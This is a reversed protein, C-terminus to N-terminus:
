IRSCIEVLRKLGLIWNTGQSSHQTLLNQQISIADNWKKAQILQTFQLLLSCAPESVQQNNLRDFLLNFRREVDALMKKQAPPVLPKCTNLTRLLVEHIPKHQHPIHSRDGPPHLQSKAAQQQQQQQPQPSPLQQQQQQPQSSTPMSGGTPLSSSLQQQATNAPPPQYQGAPASPMSPSPIASQQQPPPALPAAKHKPKTSKFIDAPPDNFGGAPKQMSPPVTPQISSPPQQQQPNSTLYAGPGTSYSASPPMMMMGAANGGSNNNPGASMPSNAIIPAPPQPVFSRTPQLPPQQQQQQHQYTAASAPAPVASTPPASPTQQNSTSTPPAMPQQQQQTTTAANTNNNNNNNYFNSSGYYGSNGSGGYYGGGGGYGYTFQQQQQQQNNNNNNAGFGHQQRYHHNNNNNNQSIPPPQQQQQHLLNQTKSVMPFSGNGTATANRSSSKAVISSSQPQHLPEFPNGLGTSQSGSAAAVEVRFALVWLRYDGGVMTLRASKADSSVAAPAASSSSSSTLLVFRDLFQKALNLLGHSVLFQCYDRSLWNPLMRRDAKGGGGSGVDDDDDDAAAAALHEFVLVWEMFEVLVEQYKVGNTDVFSSFWFSSMLDILKGVDGAILYCWCAAIRSSKLQHNDDDDDNAGLSLSYKGGNAGGSVQQEGLQRCLQSLQSPEAFTLILALKERWQQKSDGYNANIIAQWDRRLLHDVLPLYKGYIGGGGGGGGGLGTKKTLTSVLDGDGLRVRFFGTRARLLAEEGGLCGIALCDGLRSAAGSIAARLCLDIALSFQASIIAKFIWEDILSQDLNAPLPEFLTGPNKTHLPSTAPSSPLSHTTPLTQRDLSDTTEAPPQRESSSSNIAAAFDFENAQKQDFQPMLPPSSPPHHNTVSSTTTSSTANVAASNFLSQSTDAETSTPQPQKSFIKQNDDDDDDLIPQNSNTTSSYDGGDGGAEAEALTTTAQELFVGMEELEKRLSSASFGLLELLEERSNEFCLARLIPWIEASLKSSASTSQTRPTHAHLLECFEAIKGNDGGDAGILQFLNRTRKVLDVHSEGKYPHIQYLKLSTGTLLGRRRQQDDHNKSSTVSGNQAQQGGGGGGGGSVRRRSGDDAAPLSSSLAPSPVVLRNGFGFSAGCVRRLWKPPQKKLNQSFKDEASDAAADFSHDAMPLLSHVKIHGDFSANALLNPQHPCWKTEFGWSTGPPQQNSAAASSMSAGGVGMSSSPNLNSFFDASSQQQNFPSNSDLLGGGTQQQQLGGSGFPEGLLEGTQPNWCFCVGDKGTSILLDSDHWCWDVSLIGMRHANSFTRVPRSANRLDWMYMTPDWDDGSATILQTAIDPHWCVSSIRSYAGHPQQQQQQMMTSSSVPQHQLQIIERRNKLDWIVCMGNSAGTALIHQVQSNWALCLVDSLRSSKPGPSYPKLPNNMDWIFVEAQCSGTALLNHQFRNFDLGRVPGSHVQLKRAILADETNNNTNQHILRSADWLELCGDEL